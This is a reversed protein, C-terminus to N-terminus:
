WDGYFDYNDGDGLKTVYKSCYSSVSGSNNIPECRSFGFAPFGYESGFMSIDASQLREEIYKGEFKAVGPPRYILGHSHLNRSYRHPECALFGRDFGLLRIKGWLDRNFAIADRRPRKATVTIFFDWEKTQLYNSIAENLPLM